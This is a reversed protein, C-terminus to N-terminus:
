RLHFTARWVREPIPKGCPCITYYVSVIGNGEDLLRLPTRGGFGGVDVVAAESWHLGDKSWAIGFGRFQQSKGQPDHKLSDFVAVYLRQPALYTVVPNETTGNNFDVLSSPRVREFPGQLSPATVLGNKQGMSGASGYFAAWTSNDPLLFPPSISDTGTLGEWPQSSNDPQLVVGADVYPGGIGDAGAQSSVARMIQGGWNPDQPHAPGFAYYMVYYLQWRNSGEDWAPMPAWLSGKPSGPLGTSTGLTRGFSFNSNSDIAHYYVLTTNVIGQTIDTTFLHLGSATRLLTGGEFAADANLSTMPVAAAAILELTPYNSTAAAGGCLLLALQLLSHM